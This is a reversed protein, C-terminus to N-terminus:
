VAQASSGEHTAYIRKTERRQALGKIAMVGTIWSMLLATVGVTVVLCFMADVGINELWGVTDKNSTMFVLGGAMLCFSAVLETPPRSPLLTTPPARYFILYTLLRLVAAGSLLGGWQIHITTSLASHQHHSSMMIGLLFIILAPLPNFSIGETRPKSNEPQTAETGYSVTIIPHATLNTIGHNLLRRIAYSEILIGCLGGGFFMFAISVHQLDSHTWASGWGALHELFVNMCGYISILSSEVM